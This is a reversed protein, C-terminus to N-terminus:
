FREVDLNDLAKGYKFRNGYPYIIFEAAKSLVREQGTASDRVTAQFGDILKIPHIWLGGMEGPVHGGLDPFDGNQTGILYARDGAAVYPDSGNKGQNSIGDMATISDPPQQASLPDVSLAFCFPLFPPIFRHM